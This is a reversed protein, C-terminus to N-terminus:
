PNAITQVRQRLARITPLKNHLESSPSFEPHLQILRLYDDLLLETVRLHDALIQMLAQENM